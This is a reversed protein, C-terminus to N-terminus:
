KLGVPVVGSTSRALQNSEYVVAKRDRSRLDAENMQSFQSLDAYGLCGLEM